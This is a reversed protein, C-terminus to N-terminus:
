RKGGKMPRLKIAMGAGAGRGHWLAGHVDRVRVITQRSGHFGSYAETLAVVRGLEGGTWTTFRNTNSSLYGVFPRSRDLLEAIQRKDACPYCVTKGDSCNAYGTGGCHGKPYIPFANGCDDCHTKM